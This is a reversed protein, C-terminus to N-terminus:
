LLNGPPYKTGRQIFNTEIEELEFRQKFYSIVKEKDLGNKCTYVDASLFRRKPFTHISIHSEAIIVFGSWGGPDKIHNDPAEIVQPEILPHMELLKCLESISAQVVEKSNLIEPNGNYGDITIHEGFHTSMNEPHNILLLIASQYSFYRSFGTTLGEDPPRPGKLKLNEATLSAKPALYTRTDSFENGASDRARFTRVHIGSSSLGRRHDRFDCSYCLQLRRSVADVTISTRKAATEM